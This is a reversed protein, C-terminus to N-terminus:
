YITNVFGKWKQLLFLPQKMTREPNKGQEIKPSVATAFSRRFTGIEGRWDRPDPKFISNLGSTGIQLPLPKREPEFM